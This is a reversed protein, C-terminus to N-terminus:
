IVLNNQLSSKTGMEKDGLGQKIEALAERLSFDDEGYLIYLLGGGPM